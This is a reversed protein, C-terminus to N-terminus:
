VKEAHGDMYEVKDAIVDTDEPQYEPDDLSNTDSFPMELNDFDDENNDFIDDGLEDESIDGFNTAIGKM